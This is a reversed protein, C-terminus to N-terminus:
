KIIIIIFKIGVSNVVLYVVTIANNLQLLHLIPVSRIEMEEILKPTQNNIFDDGRLVAKLIRVWDSM